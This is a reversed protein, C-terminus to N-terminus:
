YQIRFKRKIYICINILITDYIQTVYILVKNLKNYVGTRKLARDGVPM